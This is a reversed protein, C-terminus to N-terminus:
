SRTARPVAELLIEDMRGQAVPAFCGCGGWETADYEGGAELRERFARLTLPRRRDGGRRDNLISIDKNLYARFKEEEAEWRAYTEPRTRWLHAWHAQGAKVCGGGCNNHEFGETYLDPVKIGDRELVDAIHCKDMYPPEALPFWVPVPAYYARMREMRDQESWDMGFILTYPESITELWREIPERKLKKSCPAIGAGHGRLTIARASYWVDFVTRGDALRVIPIELHREIDDLFRYLDADEIRTDAFVARVNERGHRHITRRLAEYSTLGGSLNVIYLV